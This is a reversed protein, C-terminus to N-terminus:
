GKEQYKACADWGVRHDTAAGHTDGRLECKYYRRAASLGPYGAYTRKSLLVCTKCQVGEKGRGYVQVCPNPNARRLKTETNSVGAEPADAFLELQEMYKRYEKVAQQFSKWDPYDAFSGIVEHLPHETMPKGNDRRAAAATRAM